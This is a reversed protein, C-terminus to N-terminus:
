RMHESFYGGTLGDLCASLENLRLKKDSRKKQDELGIDELEKEVRLREFYLKTVEDLINQRLEVMLRSRADISTQDENWIIEGLDWKLSIDWDVTDQGKRLIDDDAKTTSGGEWHFLESTDRGLGMSLEPLWAKNAAQKRWRQIKEPTVEAYVIAVQQIDKISPMGPDKKTHQPGSDTVSLDGTGAKYLGKECAAYLNDRSDLGLVFIEGASLRLSGEYWRNGAYSFIGSRTLAYLVGQRSVALFRIDSSLLGYNTLAQWDKGRSNSKYVGSSTALYLCVPEVPSVVLYRLGGAMKPDEIEQAAEGAELDDALVIVRYIKEWSNGQDVTRYLGAASVAYICGPEKPDIVVASIRGKGSEGQAKHWCRGKDRSILLGAGTGLYINEKYVAVATCEQELYDRGRYLRKWQRGRDQSYFFGEGTAAYLKNQDLDDQILANIKKNGGKITFVTRWNSGSDVSHIIARGSGAFIEGPDERTFLMTRIDRNEASLMEWNVEGGLVLGPLSLVLFLVSSFVVANKKM